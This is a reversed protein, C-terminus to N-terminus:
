EVEEESECVEVIIPLKEERSGQEVDIAAPPEESRNRRLGLRTALSMFLHGIVFGVLCAVLGATVGLVAPLIAPRVLHTFPHPLRHPRHPGHGRHSYASPSWYPSFIFGVSTGETLDDITAPSSQDSTTPLHLLSSSSSAAKLPHRDGEHQPIRSSQGQWFKMHWPRDQDPRHIDGPEIRLRTIRQSGDPHALLDLVVADHTVPQGQLDLLRVRVRVIKSHEDVEDSSLPRADLAYTLPLDAQALRAHSGGRVEPARIQMSTTPPFVQDHNAYLCGDTVSWQLSLFTDSPQPSHIAPYYPLHLEHSVSLPISSTLAGVVACASWSLSLLRM